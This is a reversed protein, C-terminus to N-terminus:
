AILVIWRENHPSMYEEVFKGDLLREIIKAPTKGVAKMISDIEAGNSMRLMQIEEDTPNSPNIFMDKSYITVDGVVVKDPYIWIREGNIPHITFIQENKGASKFIDLKPSLGASTHSKLVFIIKWDVGSNVRAVASSIGPLKSITAHNTDKVFLKILEDQM